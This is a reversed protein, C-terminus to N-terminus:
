KKFFDFCKLTSIMIDNIAKYGSSSNFATSKAAKLGELSLLVTLMVGEVNWHKSPILMSKTMAYQDPVEWLIPLQDTSSSETNQTLTQDDIM